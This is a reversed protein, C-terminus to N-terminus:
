SIIYSSYSGIREIAGGDIANLMYTEKNGTHTEGKWTYKEETSFVWVPVMLAQGRKDAGIYGMRLEASTVTVTFDHRSLSYKYFLRDKLKQKIKEFPLLEANRNETGVINACGAWYFNELGDKSVHVTLTEAILPPSYDPPNEGSFRSGETRWCLPIGGSERAYKLEYGCKEPDSPTVYKEASVLMMDKIGLDGIVKDAHTIADEPGINVKDFLEGAGVFGCEEETEGWYLMDQYMSETIGLDHGGSSYSFRTPNYYIRLPPNYSTYEWDYNEIGISAESGDGSDFIVRLFNKGSSTIEKGTEYDREYTLEASTSILPSDEPAAAQRRELRKLSELM